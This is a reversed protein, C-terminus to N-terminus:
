TRFPAVRLREADRTVMGPPPHFVDMSPPNTDRIVTRTSDTRNGNADIATIQLTNQGESGLPATVSFTGNADLPANTGNVTVATVTKDDVSGSVTISTSATLANQAPATITLSPKTTDTATFRIALRAGVSSQKVKISVTNSSLLTATREVAAINANIDTQTLIDTGNLTVTANAVRTTGDPGNIVHVRFPGSAGAPLSFDDNVTVQNGQQVTVLTPGHVPYRPNPSALVSVTVFQGAGASLEVKLTDSTALQVFRTLLAPAGAFDTPSLIATSNLRITGTSVRGTGDPAGNELKLMYGSGAVALFRETYITSGSSPANFRKPGFLPTSDPAYMVMSGRTEAPEAGSALVGGLTALMALGLAGISQHYLSM